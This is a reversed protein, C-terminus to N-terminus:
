ILTLVVPTTIAAVVTTLVIASAIPGSLADFEHAMLYVSAGVPLAAVLVIAATELGPLALARALGYVVLPQAIMKLLAIAISERWGSRIDFGALGMGLAILSLPVAADSVMAPTREIVGPLPLGTFGFATGALISAVVPNAIVGRTTRWLGSLSFDRHRAWEVSVTVLTWLVLSNFVLVLSVAPMAADGLTVKTLPIGLLVTNAFIGGMAFVSQGVGDMRFLSFAAVRGIAYVVLCGGFYALLLRADVPPLRSFDSMLRFLLAPVAVSFVFRTLADSASRPWRFQTLGFGLLVLLFLPATLSAVHLM